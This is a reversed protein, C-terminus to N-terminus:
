TELGESPVLVPGSIEPKIRTVRTNTSASVAPTRKRVILLSSPCASLIAESTPGLRNGPLQAESSAGIVLVGESYKQAEHLVEVAPATAWVMARSLPVGQLDFQDLFKKQAERASQIEEEPDEAAASAWSPEPMVSLIRLRANFRRCLHAARMVAMGATLTTDAACLVHEIHPDAFPKCIWVDEPARRALEMADACVHEPERVARAGAGIIILEAGVDQAVRMSADALAGEGVRVEAVYGKLRMAVASLKRGIEERSDSRLGLLCGRKRNGVLVVSAYWARALKAVQWTIAPEAADFAVAYLIRRTSTM